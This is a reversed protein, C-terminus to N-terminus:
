SHNQSMFIRLVFIDLTNLLLFCAPRVPDLLVELSVKRKLTATLDRRGDREAAAEADLLQQEHMEDLIMAYKDLMGDEVEVADLKASGSGVRLYNRWNNSDFGWHLTGNEQRHVHCVFQQPSFM